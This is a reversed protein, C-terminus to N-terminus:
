LDASLPHVLYKPEQLSEILMAIGCNATQIFLKPMQPKAAKRIVGADLDTSEGCRGTVPCRTLLSTYRGM